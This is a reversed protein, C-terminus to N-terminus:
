CSNLQQIISKTYNNAATKIAYTHNLDFMLSDKEKKM